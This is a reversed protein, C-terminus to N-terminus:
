SFHLQENIPNHKLNFAQLNLPIEDQQIIRRILKTCPVLTPQGNCTLVIFYAHIPVNRTHMFNMRIDVRTQIQPWDMNNCSAPRAQLILLAGLIPCISILLTASFTIDPITYRLYIAHVGLILTPVDCVNVDHAACLKHLIEGTTYTDM